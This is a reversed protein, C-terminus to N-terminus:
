QNDRGLEMRWLRLIAIRRNIETDWRRNFVLRNMRETLGIAIRHPSNRVFGKM